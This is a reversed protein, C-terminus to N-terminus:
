MTGCYGIEISGDFQAPNSAICRTGPFTACDVGGSTRCYHQCMTSTAFNVCAYKPACDAGSTCTSGQTGTAPKGFCETAGTTSASCRGGGSCAFPHASDTLNPALPNCGASCTLFGPINQDNADTIQICDRNGGGSTCDSSAACPPECVDDVCAAGAVCDSDLTCPAYFPTSGASECFEPTTANPHSCTETPSCGCPPFVDCTGGGAPTPCACTGGNCVFPAQCATTCGSSTSVCEMTSMDCNFSSPCTGDTACPFPALDSLSPACAAALVIALLAALAHRAPSRM